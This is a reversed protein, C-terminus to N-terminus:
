NSTRDKPTLIVLISKMWRRMRKSSISIMLYILIGGGVRSHMVLSGKSISMRRKSDLNGEKGTGKRLNNLRNSMRM